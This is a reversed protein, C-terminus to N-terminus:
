GGEAFDPFLTMGGDIFITAGVVYDSQDSALWVVARAIDDPEGIRKYPVLSMLRRYAEPSSWAATNIPTRVAGPAVSNVRIRQPAVEQALTKMMMAVGGKSACYNAHGAWPIIEHVSSICVIKGAARSVAPVVGRRMFELVAERACLFQGTLNVAIVTNWQELSMTHFPADRQLGANNVLIDITGFEAIARRFMEQVQREESVDAKYAFARVDSRRIEEAVAEARDEGTVYNVVIEAGAQGLAIAVAEGIGSNAGTVLAKQGALIKTSGDTM